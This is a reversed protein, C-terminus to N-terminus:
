ISVVWGKDVFNLWVFRSLKMFERFNPAMFIFSKVTSNISLFSIVSGVQVDAHHYQTSSWQSDVSSSLPNWVTGSGSLSQATAMHPVTLYVDPECGRFQSTRPASSQSHHPVGGCHSWLFRIWQQCGSFVRLLHGRSFCDFCSGTLM